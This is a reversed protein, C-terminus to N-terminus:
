SVLAAILVLAVVIVIMTLCGTKHRSKDPGFEREIRALDRQLEREDRADERANLKENEREERAIERMKQNYLSEPVTITDGEVSSKSPPFWIDHDSAHDHFLIAGRESHTVVRGTLTITKARSKGKAM